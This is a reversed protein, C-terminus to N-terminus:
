DPVIMYKIDAISMELLLWIAALAPIAFLLDELGLKIGIVIFAGTFVYKWPTSKIRQCTPHLLEESPEQGYDCLWKGPIRNFFYVAGNGLLIGLVIAVGCIILTVILQKEM